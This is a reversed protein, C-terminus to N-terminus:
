RLRKEQWYVNAGCSIGIKPKKNGLVHINGGSSNKGLAPGTNGFVTITGGTMRMALKKGADGGLTVYGGEMYGCCYNGVNKEVSVIGGCLGYFAGHGLNGIVSLKGKHFNTGFYHHNESATLFKVADNEMLHALISGFAIASLDEDHHVLKYADPNDILAQLDSLETRLSPNKNLLERVCGGIDLHSYNGTIREELISGLQHLATWLPNTKHTFRRKKPPMDERELRGVLDNALTKM